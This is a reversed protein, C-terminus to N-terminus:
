DGKPHSLKRKTFRQYLLLAALLGISYSLLVATAIGMLGAIPFLTLCLIINFVAAISQIVLPTWTDSQAYFFRLVLMLLSYPFLALAYIRLLDGLLATDSSELRGLFQLFDM